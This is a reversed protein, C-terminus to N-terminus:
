RKPLVTKLISDLAASAPQIGANVGNGNVQPAPTTEQQTEPQEQEPAAQQEAAAQVEPAPSEKPKARSARQRKPAEAPATGAPPAGVEPGVVFQKTAQNYFRGDPLAIVNADLSPMEVKPQVPAIFEGTATNFREGSPLDIIMDNAQTQAAQRVEPERQRLPPEQRVPEPQAQATERQPVPDTEMIPAQQRVRPDLTANPTPNVPVGTDFDPAELMAAVYPSEAIKIVQDFEADNLGDVFNFVLKPYAENYDFSLRTVCAAPEWGQRELMQAYAKLSKLSTAPVRMLFTMPEKNADGLQGPMMVAIRRADACAKGGRKGEEPNRSPASGFANHRCNVCTPNQKNAVSPDPRIGDLSWCDPPSFNGDDAFGSIYFAKSIMRSANALVVDLYPIVQRTQQDILPTEQGDMRIRFVKGKISLMPFADRVGDAFNRNTAVGGALRNRMAVPARAQGIPIVNNM